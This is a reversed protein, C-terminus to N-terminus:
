APMAPPQLPRDPPFLRPKFQRWLKRLVLWAVITIPVWVVAYVLLFALDSTVGLGFRRFSIWATSFTAAVHEGVTHPMKPMPKVPMPEFMTLLVNASDAGRALDIREQALSEQDLGARFLREQIYLIDSGRM